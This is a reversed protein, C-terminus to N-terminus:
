EDLHPSNADAKRRRRLILFEPPNFCHFSVFLVLLSPNISLLSKIEEIGASNKRTRASYGQSFWGTPVAPPSLSFSVLRTESIQSDKPNKQFARLIGSEESHPSKSTASALVHPIM